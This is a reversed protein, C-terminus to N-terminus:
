KYEELNVMYVYVSNEGDSYVMVSFTFILNGWVGILNIPLLM